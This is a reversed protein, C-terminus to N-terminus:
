VSYIEETETRAFHKLVYEQVYSRGIAKLYAPEHIATGRVAIEEIGDLVCQLDVVKKGVEHAKLLAYKGTLHVFYPVGRALQVIRSRAATDFHYSKRLFREAGNIIEDLESAPMLGVQICGEAIQRPLSAHELILDPVNDAVGVLVFRGLDSPLAKLFAAVGNKDKLKDFEDIILLAGEEVIGSKRLSHLTNLFLAEASLQPLAQRREVDKVNVEGSGSLVAFNAKGTLKYLTEKTEVNMPVWDALGREDVILRILVDQLNQISEDVRVAIPLFDFRYDKLFPFRNTADRDSQSIREIVRALSSKGVGRPGYVILHTGRSALATAAHQVASVRGAFRDLDQIEDAPTFANVLDASM